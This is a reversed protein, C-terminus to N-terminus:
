AERSLWPPQRGIKLDIVPIHFFVTTKEFEFMHDAEVMQM